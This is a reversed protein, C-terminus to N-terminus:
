PGTRRRETLAARRAIKRDTAVIWVVLVAGGLAALLFFVMAIAPYGFVTSRTPVQMMLAAGVVISALVVGMTLRNALRQLVTLLRNEDFANVRVTLEGDSLADLIRNARRPLQAAFEKAELAAAMVGGPSVALGSRMISSVNDRIADTPSFTPDLHVTAQDLNLLAKGVMAMEAPPRLGHVGSLRSLELLVSGTQLDSGMAMSESVLHSVDERFKAADYDELPHGMSALVQATEEGDGDSIALLLKVIKDQVRPPVTAVMGLDLLAIRGDSTLLLNGPHPDAHLVGLDLIMRLYCAFLEEVLPGTDLETLGLPSIDTVKRGEVREMTLVRATTYDSIPQPVVIHPYDETLKGFKQLNRAERVYDLEGALSRRFQALLQAFGYKRGAGTYSDAMAALKELARMDERVVDRIGPRQVKVVVDRGSRTLARHVQGISASALPTEDFRTFLHRLQAGLETEVTERVQDFPFPEVSDQLRALAETYPQPLLDFRTSLLQGLKVYTPGMSELDDALATAAADDVAAEDDIDFEDLGASSVLDTRGYRVFLRLLDFYRRTRPAGTTTM